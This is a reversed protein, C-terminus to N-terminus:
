WRRISAETSPNLALALSGALGDVFQQAPSRPRAREAAPKGADLIQGAIAAMDQAHIHIIGSFLIAGLFIRCFLPKM